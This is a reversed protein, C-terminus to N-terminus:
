GKLVKECIDLAKKLDALYLAHRIDTIAIYLKKADEVKVWDGDSCKILEKVSHWGRKTVDELDYRDM